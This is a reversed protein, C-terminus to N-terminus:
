IPQKWRSSNIIWPTPQPVPAWPLEPSEGSGWCREYASRLTSQWLSHINNIGMKRLFNFCWVIVSTTFGIHQERSNEKVQPPLATPQDTILRWLLLQIWSQVAPIQKIWGLATCYCAILMEKNHLSEKLAGLATLVAPRSHAEWNLGPMLGAVSPVPLSTKAFSRKGWSDCRTAERVLGARSGQKITCSCTRKTARVRRM